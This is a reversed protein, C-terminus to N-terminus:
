YPCALFFSFLFQWYNRTKDLNTPQNKLGTGSPILHEQGGQTERNHTFCHTEVHCWQVSVKMTWLFPGPPRFPEVIFEVAVHRVQVPISETLNYMARSEGHSSFLYGYWDGGQDVLIVGEAMCWSLPTFYAVPAGDFIWPLSLMVMPVHFVLVSLAAPLSWSTVCLISLYLHFMRPSQSILHFFKPSVVVSSPCLTKKLPFSSLCLCPMPNRTWLPMTFVTMPHRETELLSIVMWRLAAGKLM